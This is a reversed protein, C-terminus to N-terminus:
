NDDRFILYYGRCLPCKYSVTMYSLFCLTHFTHNCKDLTIYKYDTTAVTTNCDNECNNNSGNECANNCDNSRLELLCICCNDDINFVLTPDNHFILGSTLLANSEKDSKFFSLTCFLLNQKIHLPISLGYIIIVSELFSSPCMCIMDLNGYTKLYHYIIGCLTTLEILKDNRIYYHLIDILIDDDRYKDLVCDSYFSAAFLRMASIVRLEYLEVNFSFLHPALEFLEYEVIFAITEFRKNLFCTKVYHLSPKLRKNKLYLIIDLMNGLSTFRVHLEKKNELFTTAMDIAIEMAYTPNDSNYKIQINECLYHIMKINQNRIAYVLAMYRCPAGLKHLYCILSMNNMQAAIDMFKHSLMGVTSLAYRVLALKNREILTCISKYSFQLKMQKHLYTLLPYKFHNHQIAIDIGQESYECQIVGKHLFGILSLKGNKIATDMIDQPYVMIKNNIDSLYISKVLNIDNLIIANRLLYLNSM